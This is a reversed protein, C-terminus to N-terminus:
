SSKLMTKKWETLILLMIRSHKTLSNAPSMHCTFQSKHCKVCSIHSMVHHKVSSIKEMNNGFLKMFALFAVVFFCSPSCIPEFTFFFNKNGLLSAVIRMPRSLWHTGYLNKKSINKILRLWYKVTFFVGKWFIDKIEEQFQVASVSILLTGCLVM